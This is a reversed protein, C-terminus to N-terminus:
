DYSDFHYQEFEIELESFLDSLDPENHFKFFAQLCATLDKSHYEKMLYDELRRINQISVEYHSDNAKEVDISYKM